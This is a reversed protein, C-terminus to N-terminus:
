RAHEIGRRILTAVLNIMASIALSLLRGGWTARAPRRRRVQCLPSPPCSVVGVAAEPGIQQRRLAAKPSARVAQIM